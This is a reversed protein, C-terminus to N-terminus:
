PSCSNDDSMFGGRLQMIVQMGMYRKITTETQNLLDELFMKYLEEDELLYNTELIKESLSCFKRLIDQGELVRSNREKALIFKLLPPIKVLYNGESDEVGFLMALDIDLLQIMKLIIEINPNTKIGNEIQSLYGPSIDLEKAFAVLTLNQEERKAKIIEGVKIKM